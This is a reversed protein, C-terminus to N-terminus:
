LPDGFLMHRAYKPAPSGFSLLRDHYARESFGPQKVARERMGMFETYGYLYTSLQASTLRARRWKAAAEGEEQFAEETMLKMAAKEDMQGAHVDHDLMANAAMRLEMKLMQMRTRLGGFGKDSMLWEAYTAWGEIFVGSGFVARIDSKFRNAHMLQLYHGPMAEHVTLDTLMARNYERYFSEARKKSWDAPTPSIAFFTMANKEFPGSSDCYAIAIGRRYEPMEIVQLPESPVQVLDQARVFETADHVLKRAEQVITANTPRDKALEDLVKRVLTLKAEHTDHAPPALKAFLEPWLKLSVQVMEEQRKELLEQAAGYLQDSPLDAELYFRLKKEFRAKGLREEGDSRKLLDKKLYEGFERLAKAAAQARKQLDAKHQPVKDFEAPLQKEVLAILGANQQIATDTHLKPPRKLNARAAELVAPIGGLRAGMSAMREPLPAFERTLLPDLGDGLLTTYWVPDREFERLEELSFSWLDLQNRLILADVRNKSDLKDVAIADLAARTQQIFAREAQEAEAGIRPWRGDYRHDGLQTAHVPNLELYRALFSAALKEFAQDATPTDAMPEEATASSPPPLLPPPPIRAPGPDSACGVLFAALVFYRM